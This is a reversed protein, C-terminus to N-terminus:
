RPFPIGMGSGIIDKISTTVGAEESGASYFAPEPDVWKAVAVYDWRYANNSTNNDDADLYLYWGTIDLNTPSINSTGGTTLNDTQVYGSKIYGRIDYWTSANTATSSYNDYDTGAVKAREYSDYDYGYSLGVFFFNDDDFPSASGDVYTFRTDQEAYMQSIIKANSSPFTFNTTHIRPRDATDVLARIYDDGSTESWSNGDVTWKDTYDGDDFDDFFLFTNDGNSVNSASSNGYYIYIDVDSGLDDAVEVWCWATRNPSSGEVKEVWFDLLTTEDNDTFRLDGSDNKDSPFLASHGEVHFDAGSAGSSEGVKLLVQYNTGAGTQGTITIKKRYTWGTLWAM